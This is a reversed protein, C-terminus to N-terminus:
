KCVPMGLEGREGVHSDDGQPLVLKQQIHTGHAPRHCRLDRCLMPSLGQPTLPLSAPVLAGKEGM